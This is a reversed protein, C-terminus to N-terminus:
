PKPGGSLEALRADLAAQVFRYMKLGNAECYSKVQNITRQEIWATLQRVQGARERDRRLVPPKTKTRPM